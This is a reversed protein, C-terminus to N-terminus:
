AASDLATPPEMAINDKYSAMGIGNGGLQVHFGAVAHCQHHSVLCLSSRDHGNIDIKSLLLLFHHHHNEHDSRKM